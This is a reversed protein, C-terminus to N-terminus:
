LAVADAIGPRSRLLDVFDEWNSPITLLKVSGDEYTIKVTM